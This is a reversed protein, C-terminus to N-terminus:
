RPLDTDADGAGLGQMAQVYAPLVCAAPGDAQVHGAELWIVRDAGAMTAPDHSITIIQQPLASLRRMLRIQTPMDLGAFPEDLLITKPVMALVALLCLYHRQGGSLTHTPADAWSARGEGALLALAAARAQAASQGMQRLGFAIEEAVTPFLIQADPNQFVIGIAGLMARRDDPNEGHVRVTGGSAAILGAMLRLLTTKGSGNRGIIGIRAEALTLSLPALIQRGQLTVSARDLAIM